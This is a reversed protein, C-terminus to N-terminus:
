KVICNAIDLTVVLVEHHLMHVGREDDKTFTIDPTTISEVINVEKSARMAYRKRAMM